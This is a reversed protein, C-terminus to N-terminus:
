DKICRISLGDSKQNYGTTVQSNDYHLDKSWANVGDDSSTWFGTHLTMNYFGNQYRYGAPLANFGLSNTAAVNPLQWLITDKLQGGAVLDGGLFNILTDFEALSPVHWGTPCVNRPDVTVWWDYLLGWTNVLSTDGNYATSQNIISDGNAFHTQRLNEAMWEQNGIIVTQYNYQPPNPNNVVPNQGNGNQIITTYTISDILSTEISVVTGDSKHINMYTQAQTIFGVILLLSFILYKM